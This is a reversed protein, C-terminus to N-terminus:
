QGGFNKGVGKKHNGGAQTHGRQRKKKRQSLQISARVAALSVVYKSARGGPTKGRGQLEHQARSSGKMSRSGQQAGATSLPFGFQLWVALTALASAAGEDWRGM